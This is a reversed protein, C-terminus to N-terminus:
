ILPQHKLEELVRLPSLSPNSMADLPLLFTQEMAHQGSIAAHSVQDTFAMWSSGAPFDIDTHSSTSQYAEDLKMQDHMHMMYHDYPSRTEKTIKFLRMLSASGPFPASIRPAFRAAVDAFPEGAQWHRTQGAPHVNAFVRLIRKGQTPRSPFSDIHLLRDDHRKSQVRGEAEVPRFSANGVILAASYSPLFRDVLNRAFDAYRALLATLAASDKYREAAGWIKRQAPSYKISKSGSAVCDPNLFIQEEATFRFSEQPFLLIKGQELKEVAQARDGTNAPTWIAEETVSPPRNSPPNQSSLLESM